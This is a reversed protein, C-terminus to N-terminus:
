TRSDDLRGLTIAVQLTFASRPDQPVYGVLDTVRKLRYRVTNPHVFLKRAAAELSAAQELYAALTELLAPGAAQLPRYVDEVLKRIAVSGGALAREPLLDDALVPRSAGPWAPAARLGEVAAQASKAAAVLDPASPGIVVPGPGFQDALKSTAALPGQAGGLIAVLRNGQVGTLVNLGASRATRRMSDVVIEPEASPTHGVMVIVSAPTGWGLSAARSQIDEDVKGSLLADVVSSELRADWAGRVEAAQAYAQAAAFAIERSYLLVAERLTAEDEPTALEGLREEIAQVAVRLLEVMQQFTVTRRLQRPAGEFVDRPVAHANEPHRFWETFAAIGSQAVLGIWSRTDAPLQRYWPLTEDLRSIAM